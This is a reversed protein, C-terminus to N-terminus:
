MSSVSHVFVSWPASKCHASRVSESLAVTGSLTLQVFAVSAATVGTDVPTAVAVAVDGSDDVALAEAVCVDFAALALFTM